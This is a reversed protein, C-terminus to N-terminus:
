PESLPAAYLRFPLRPAEGQQPYHLRSLQGEAVWARDKSITVGTPDIFGDRITEVQAKDGDITLRDLRGAGEILLFRQGGLPRLADTLVLPRSTKLKTVKGAVGDKVDVRFLEGPTFTNVYLNGDGGFAIGDLGAGSAPPALQPDSAWVRLQGSTPDLRLIEPAFTNTVYASGDPGIAIDNCLARPGPFAASVKGEGTKLDFGKLFAGKVESPGAVGLASADNSCVWLTNSSEDALVGFTSRTGFAGPKIWSEAKSAGPAVRLVGGGALSSVYLAGDATSSISEPFVREGPLDVTPAQARGATAFTLFGLYALAILARGQLRM